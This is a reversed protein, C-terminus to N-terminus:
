CKTFFYTKMCIVNVSEDCKNVLTLYENILEDNFWAVPWCLNLSKVTLNERIKEESDQILLKEM